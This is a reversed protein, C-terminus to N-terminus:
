LFCIIEMCHLPSSWPVFPVPSSSFAPSLLDLFSEFLIDLIYSSTIIFARWNFLSHELFPISHKLCLPFFSISALSSLLPCILFSKVLLKLYKKSFKWKFPHYNIVELPLIIHTLNVGKFFASFFSLHGSSWKPSKCMLLPLSTLSFYVPKLLM